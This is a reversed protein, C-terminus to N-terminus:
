AALVLRGAIGHTVGVAVQGHHIALHGRGLILLAAAGLEGAATNAHATCPRSVSLSGRDAILERYNDESAVIRRDDVRLLGVIAILRGGGIQVLVLTLSAGGMVRRARLCRRLGSTRISAAMASSPQM